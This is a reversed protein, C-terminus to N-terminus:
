GRYRVIKEFEEADQLLVRAMLRAQPIGDGDQEAHASGLVAMLLPALGDTRRYSPVMVDAEYGSVGIIKNPRAVVHAMYSDAVDGPSTRNSITAHLLEYSQAAHGRPWMTATVIIM